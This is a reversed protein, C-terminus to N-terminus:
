RRCGHIPNGVQASQVVAFNGRDSKGGSEGVVLHWPIMSAASSIPMGSISTGNFVGNAATTLRTDARSASNCYSATIRADRACGFIVRVAILPPAGAIM